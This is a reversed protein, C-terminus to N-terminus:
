QNNIIPALDYLTGDETQILTTSYNGTLGVVRTKCNDRNDIRM